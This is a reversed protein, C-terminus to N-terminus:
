RRIVNNWYNFNIPAGYFRYTMYQMYANHYCTDYIHHLTDIDISETENLKKINDKESM